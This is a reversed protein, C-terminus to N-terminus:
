MSHFSIFRWCLLRGSESGEQLSGNRESVVRKTRYSVWSNVFLKCSGSHDKGDLIVAWWDVPDGFFLLRPSQGIIPAGFVSIRQLM